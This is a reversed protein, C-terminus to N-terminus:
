LPRWTFMLVLLIAPLWLFSRPSLSLSRLNAIPSESKKHSQEDYGLKSILVAMGVPILSIAPGSTGYLYDDVMGHFIATFLSLCAAFYWLRTSHDHNTISLLRRVGLVYIFMFSIGGLLGQEIMVNLIMNHSHPLLYYPLVIVYQSYLGPFSALGGGTFPFDRLIMLGSRFVEARSVFVDSGVSFSAGLMGSPIFLVVVELTLIGAIAFCPFLGLWKEKSPSRLTTLLRWTVWIGLAGVLGLFAGRSSALLVAFLVIGLATLVIIRQIFGASKNGGSEGLLPLGFAATIISIGAADNPHIAPLQFFQPRMTMWAVGLQHIWQFKAAQTHFDATLLFCSAVGVGALLAVGALIHLNQAPQESITIYLLIAVVILWYKNWAATEDHAVSYSIVATVLFVVLSAVLLPPQFSTPKAVSRLGFVVIAPVLVWMWAQPWLYLAVGSVIVLIFTSLALWRSELFSQM